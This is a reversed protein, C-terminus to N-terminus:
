KQRTYQSTMFEQWVENEDLVLAHLIRHDADVIEIIDQYQSTGQGTFSPGTADLVLKKGADDLTGQDYVWLNAMCSSVFAGVFTKKVPDYGLTMQSVATGGRPMESEMDCVAWVEGLLRVSETGIATENPKDPGMDMESKITWNGLLNELWQHEVQPEVHM